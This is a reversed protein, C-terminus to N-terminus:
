GSGGGGGSIWWQWCECSGCGGGGCWGCRLESGGCWGGRECCLSDNVWVDWACGGGCWCDGKGERM